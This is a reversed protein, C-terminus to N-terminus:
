AVPTSLLWRAVPEDPATSVQQVLIDLAKANNIQTARQQALDVLAPFRAKVINVLVRQLTQIEGEVLGEAKGKA